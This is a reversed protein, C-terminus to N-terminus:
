PEISRDKGDEPSSDVKSLLEVLEEMILQSVTIKAINTDRYYNVKFPYKPHKKHFNHFHRQAEKKSLKSLRWYITNTESEEIQKNTLVNFINHDVFGEVNMFKAVSDLASRPSNPPIIGTIQYEPKNLERNMLYSLEARKALFDLTDNANANMLKITGDQEIQIGKPPKLETASTFSAFALFILSLYLFHKM